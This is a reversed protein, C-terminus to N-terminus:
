PVTGSDVQQRLKRLKEVVDARTRGSVKKRVRKGNANYGLSIAGRWREGDKYVSDEGYARRTSMGRVGARRAPCCLGRPRNGSDPAFWRDQGIAAHRIADARLGKTRGIGLAMAADEPRVLLVPLESLAQTM